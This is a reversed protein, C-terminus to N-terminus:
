EDVTEGLIKRVAREAHFIADLKGARVRIAREGVNVIDVLRADAASLPMARVALLRDVIRYEDRLRPYFTAMQDFMEEVHHDIKNRNDFHAAAKSWTNERGLPTWKASTLSSLGQTENWPYLSPFPGDMITIARDVPGELLVTVCAEFRDVGIVDQSCFTCDVTLDWLSSDVEGPVANYRTIEDLRTAFFERAKDLLVHREGTLIAGEVNELGLEKPNHITVFEIEDRLVQKYTGFDVLSQDQAIAYVNIPVGHTLHGYRRMFEAFHGQCALRTLKSRPYHQGMHLRAPMNGSAGNFLRSATEYLEVCYREDATLAMALHAGYFGGGLIRVCKM